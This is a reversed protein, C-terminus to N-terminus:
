EEIFTMGIRQMKRLESKKKRRRRSTSADIVPAMQNNHTNRTKEKKEQKKILMTECKRERRCHGQNHAIHLQSCSVFRLCEGSHLQAFFLFFRVNAANPVFSLSSSFMSSHASSFVHSIFIGADSARFILSFSHGDCTLVLADENKLLHHFTRVHACATWIDVTDLFRKSFLGHKECM